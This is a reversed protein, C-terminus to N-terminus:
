RGRADAGCDMGMNNSEPYKAKVNALVGKHIGWQTILRMNEKIPMSM